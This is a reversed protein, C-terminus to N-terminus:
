TGSVAAQRERRELDARVATATQQGCHLYERILRVTPKKLAGSKLGNSVTQVYRELEQSTGRQSERRCGPVTKRCSTSPTVPTVPTVPTITVPAIPTVPTVPPAGEVTPHAPFQPVPTECPSEAGATVMAPEFNVSGSRRGQILLLWCVSALGDLIVAFLLAPALALLASTSGLWAAARSTVPDARRQDRLLESRDRRIQYRESEEAEARLAKARATVEAIRRQTWPCENCAGSSLKNLQTLLKAEEELVASLARQPALQDDEIPMEQARRSGSEQQMLVFYTAHGYMTYTMCTAWMVLVMARGWGYSLRSIAPLLHAALVAVAGVLALLAGDEPGSANRWGTLVSVAISISGALLALATCVANVAFNPGLLPRNTFIM